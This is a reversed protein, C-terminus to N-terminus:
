TGKTLPDDKEMRGNPFEWETCITVTWDRAPKWNNDCDIGLEGDFNMTPLCEYAFHADTHHKEVRQRLCRGRDVECACGLLCLGLVYLVRM